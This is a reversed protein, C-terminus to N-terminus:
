LNARYAEELVELVEGDVDDVGSARVEGQGM